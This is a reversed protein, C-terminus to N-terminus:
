VDEPGPSPRAGDDWPTSRPAKETVPRAPAVDCAVRFGIEDPPHIPPSSFRDYHDRRASYVRSHDDTCCGGRFARRDTPSPGVPDVVELGEYDGLWDACWEQVNGYMDYLGWPNPKKKGVQHIRRGSNDKLWAYEHLDTPDDGFYYRTRTGARCAYEWEAETPLRYSRGEKRSLWQCFTEADEWTVKAV